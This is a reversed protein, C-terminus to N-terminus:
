KLILKKVKTSFEGIFKLHYIGSQYKTLDLIVEDNGKLNFVAVTKGSSAFLIVKNFEKVNNIKISGDSPNPYVSIERDINLSLSKTINIVSYEGDSSPYVEETYADYYPNLMTYEIPIISKTTSNWVKLIIPNGAEYGKELNTTSFVALENDFAYNSNIKMAGVLTEDAFAAVEDGINLGDIYISYVPDAANGGTFNFYETTIKSANSFKKDTSPYILVDDNNMKVLYGETPILNGIGNIWNPGIKRLMDGTSNRVFDLNELVDTFAVIADIPSDLLMSIFHYGTSLGIPTQPDIPEGSLYLDEEGTMKFLYGETTVWDGIGNIWNPGIKRLMYGLSNRVYALNDGMIDGLVAMMDPESFILNTSVFQFGVYLNIPESCPGCSSFCVLDLVTNVEPVTFFRNTYQSCEDPVIEADDWTIGNIFKYEYFDNSTLITTYTYIDNGTTTMETAGPDWGQFGGAVHVGDASVEENSMDVQFTIEVDVPPNGCPGCEGYCVVDLTTNVDPVTLFRNNNNSCEPPVMEDEGWEDGNLYKFEHYQESTLTLTVAYINDGMDSLETSTTNWGQFSGAVHVGDASVEENTMDVQFTVDVEVPQGGCPDCSGFCVLDLVTNADPVTLFRNNNNSCEPPVSEDQGWQNGNIFKYEYYDGVSLILTVQYVNDGVDTLETTGPDWGQFSGAVHVGDVSVEENTMDVQFTIEVEPPACVVCSGFCVAELVTADEPVTIFRNGNQACGAPVGEDQGWQNGNVFKYEFYAGVELDLTIAYIADTEIFLETAAPDWGQFSGAVHVGFESVIQEAMDVRFTVDVANAKNTFGILFVTILLIGTFKTIFNKM